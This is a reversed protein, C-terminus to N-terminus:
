WFAWGRFPYSAVTPLVPNEKRNSQEGKTLGAMRARARKERWKGTESKKGREKGGSKRFEVLLVMKGSNM